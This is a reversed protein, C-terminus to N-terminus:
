SLQPIGKLTGPVEVNKPANKGFSKTELCDFVIIRQQRAYFTLVNL